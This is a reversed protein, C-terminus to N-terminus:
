RKSIPRKRISGSINKKYRKPIGSKIYDPEPIYQAEFDFQETDEALPLVTPKKYSSSIPKRVGGNFQKIM